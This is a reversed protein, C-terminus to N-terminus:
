LGVVAPHRHAPIVSVIADIPLVVLRGALGTRVAVHGDPRAELTGLYANDDTEVVVLTGLLRPLLNPM